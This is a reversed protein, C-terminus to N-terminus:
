CHLKWFPRSQCCKRCANCWYFMTDENDGEYLKSLDIVNIEDFMYKKDM